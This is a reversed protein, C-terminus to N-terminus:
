EGDDDGGRVSVFDLTDYCDSGNVHIRAVGKRSLPCPTIRKVEVPNKGGVIADGARLQDAKIRKM